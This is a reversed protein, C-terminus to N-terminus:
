FVKGQGVSGTVGNRAKATPCRHVRAAKGNKMDKVSRLLKEGIDKGSIQENREHM